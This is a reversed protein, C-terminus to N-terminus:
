LHNDAAKHIIPISGLDEAFAALTRLQQVVEGARNKKKGKKSKCFM